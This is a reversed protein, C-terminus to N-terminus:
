IGHFSGKEEPELNSDTRLEQFSTSAHARNQCGGRHTHTNQRLHTSTTRVVVDSIFGLALAFALAARVSARVPSASNTKLRCIDSAKGFLSFARCLIEGADEEGERKELPKLRSLVHLMLPRASRTHMTTGTVVHFLFPLSPPLRPSTSCSRETKREEYM